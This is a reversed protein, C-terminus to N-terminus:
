FTDTMKKFICDIKWIIMVNNHQKYTFLVVRRIFDISKVHHNTISVASVVNSCQSVAEKQFLSPVLFHGNGKLMELRLVFM